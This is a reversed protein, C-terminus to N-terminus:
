KKVLERAQEVKTDGWSKFLGPAGGFTATGFTMVPIMLGSNGLARYEM